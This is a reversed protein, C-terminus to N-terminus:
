GMGNRGLLTAVEGEAVALDLGFLVQSQGYALELGRIELLPTMLPNQISPACADSGSDGVEVLLPALFFGDHKLM